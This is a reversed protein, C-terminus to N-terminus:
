DFGIRLGEGELMEILVASVTEEAFKPKIVDFPLGQARSQMWPNFNVAEPNSTRVRAVRPGIATAGVLPYSLHVWQPYLEHTEGLQM